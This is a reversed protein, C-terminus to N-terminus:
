PSDLTAQLATVLRAAADFEFREILHTLDDVPNGLAAHLTAAHTAFLAMAATDSQRLLEALRALTDRVQGPAPVAMAALAPVAVQQMPLAQALLAFEQQVADIRHRIAAQDLSGDPRLELLRDLLATEEALRHAGLTGATGKLTHTLLRAQAANGQALYEAVRAMDDTHDRVLRDLLDQYKGVQGRLVAVGRAADLGPISALRVYLAEEDANVPQPSSVVVDAPLEGGDPAAKGPSAPPFVLWKLLLGYLLAPEVPKAIFDNMGAAECALRDEEFANATMALIPIESWGPLARIARTAVLGDMRPMQMDMLVLDYRQMRAKELAQLGDEATEVRLGVGHLLELAVDRNIPNDEALLLRANSHADRLRAEASDGLTDPVEHVLGQGRQLWATFWFTSGQGPTSEAGADGGMLQALRRTIALGLGTGGYRRTISADAQEFNQFLHPLTEPAIGIGTDTVAFRVLLREGQSEMLRASLTISGRETFKVANGAYNVLAQRLRMADGRLWTPVADGDVQVSLGKAEAAGSIMSRAQDLVAGLAFDGESIQLKDAEIRSLDLIDNILSLLHHASKSIKELRELQQPTAADHQMLHTLGIIANMPTRIEHSMNALFASKAHSATEAQLKAEMLEHTRVAVEDELHHRYRELEQELAKKRSIDEKVAVYHTIRGDPQRLPAISALEVYEAGDKRRNIFEGTWTQGQGLAQWMAVYTEPPTQGSQLVRPNQGLVEERTYGTARLFSENVYEIRADLNAIVISDPSQEVALSLKRLQDEVQRHETVDLMVGQLSLPRGAEDSVVQAQDIFHHWDGNRAQLRYEMAFSGGDHQAQLVRELVRQRDEPHLRQAWLDPAALWDQPSYGLARVAGSVYSTSSGPDLSARYILGPVQETLLRYNQESERLAVVAAEARQRAAVADEMLNLAALRGQRQTELAALQEAARAAESERLAVEARKRETVDTVISYLLRRGEVQIPSAYVEVDCVSADARRHQFEFRKRKVSTVLAMDRQLEAWSKTNIQAINMGQLQELTWGHFDVAARNASVIAGTTGDMLLMVAQSDDFLSHYRAESVQLAQVDTWRALRRSLLLGVLVVLLPHVLMVPLGIASLVPQVSAPPLMLGMLALMVGHVGLGMLYLDMWYIAELPTRLWRRWVLGILGSAVIVCVGTVAGAGGQELRYAATMFVAIATPVAGFFLGAVCLLVSRIDLVVGPVLPVPSLMVGLGLAGLILGKLVQNEKQWDPRRRVTVLDLVQIVLLLLAANFILPNLIATSM